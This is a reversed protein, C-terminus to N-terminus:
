RAVRGPRREAMRDARRGEGTENERVPQPECRQESRQRRRQNVAPTSRVDRRRRTPYSLRVASTSTPASAEAHDERAVHELGARVDLRQEEPAQEDDVPPDRRAAAAPATASSM